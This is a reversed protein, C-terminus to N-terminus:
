WTTMRFSTLMRRAALPPGPTMHQHARHRGAGMLATMTGPKAFGSVGELLRLGLQAAKGKEGPLDVEYIVSKWTLTYPTFPFSESPLSVSVAMPKLGCFQLFLYFFFIIVFYTM